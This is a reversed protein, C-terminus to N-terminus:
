LGWRTSGLGMMSLPMRLSTLKVIFFLPLNFCPSPLLKRRRRRRRRRRRGGGGERWSQKQTRVIRVTRRGGDPFSLPDLPYHPHYSLSSQTQVTRTSKTSVTQKRHNHLLLKTIDNKNSNSSKSSNSSNSSNSVESTRSDCYFVNKRNKGEGRRKEWHARGGQVQEAVLPAM